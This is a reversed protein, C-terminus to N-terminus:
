FSLLKEHKHQNTTSVTLFCCIFINNKFFHYFQNGTAEKWSALKTNKLRPDLKHSKRAAMKIAVLAWCFNIAFKRNEVTKNDSINKNMNM